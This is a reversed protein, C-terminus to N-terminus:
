FLGQSGGCSLETTSATSEWGMGQDPTLGLGVGEEPEKQLDLSTEFSSTVLGPHQQTDAGDQSEWAGVATVDM